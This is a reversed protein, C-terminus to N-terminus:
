SGEAQPPPGPPRGPGRGHHYRPMADLAERCSESLAEGQHRLCRFAHPGREPCRSELEESCADRLPGWHREKFAERREALAERQEPTLMDRIDLMVGIRHKRLETKLAGMREVQEMVADRDVEEAEMLEHLRDREAAMAEHLVEADEHSTEVVARLADRTEDDLGLSEAHFDLIKEPHGMGMGAHPGGLAGHPGATAPVAAGLALALGLGFTQLTHRWNM